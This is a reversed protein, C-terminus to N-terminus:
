EFSGKILQIVDVNTLGGWVAAERVFDMQLTSPKSCQVPAKYWDSESLVARSSEVRSKNWPVGPGRTCKFNFRLFKQFPIILTSVDSLWSLGILPWPVIFGLCWGWQFGVDEGLWQVVGRSVGATDSSDSEWYATVSTIAMAQREEDHGEVELLRAGEM